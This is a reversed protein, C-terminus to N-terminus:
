YIYPIKSKKLVIGSAALYNNRIYDRYRKDNSKTVLYNWFEHYLKDAADKDHAKVGKVFDIYKKDWQSLLSNVSRANIGAPKMNQFYEEIRKGMEGMTVPPVM